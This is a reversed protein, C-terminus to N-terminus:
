FLRVANGRLSRGCSMFPAATQTTSYSLYALGACETQITKL